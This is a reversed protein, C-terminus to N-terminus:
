EKSKIAKEYAATKAKFNENMMEQTYYETDSNTCYCRTEPFEICVGKHIARITTNHIEVDHVEMCATCLKHETKTKM